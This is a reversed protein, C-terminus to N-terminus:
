RLQTAAARLVDIYSVIGVLTGSHGEVVPLAGVKESVMVDIIDVLSASPDVTEVDGSMVDAVKLKGLAKARDLDEEDNLRYVGLERLDRDSVMGVLQGEDVVPLHRVSLDTLIEVASAVDTTSAVCAVDRTMLESANM